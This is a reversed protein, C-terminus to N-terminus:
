SLMKLKVLQEIFGQFCCAKWLNGAWCIAIHQKLSEHKTTMVNRSFPTLVMTASARVGPMALDDVAMTNITCSLRDTAKWLSANWNGIAVPYRFFSLLNKYQRPIIPCRLALYLRIWESNIFKIGLNDTYINFYIMSELSNIVTVWEHYMNVYGFYM